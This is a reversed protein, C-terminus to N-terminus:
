AFYWGGEILSPVDYRLSDLRHFREKDKIKETPEQTTSDIERSYTGLEDLLGVCSDFVYLRFTKFLGIVRDIGTEVDAVFPRQVPVGAATWDWRYQQESAAGGHWTRVNTGRATALATAAHDASTKGGELSEHYVYFVHSVPDEAIWVTATNVAGFDIGINRPWEPPIDFAHVKHGGEERYTDIFDSYILGAPRSFMGRQFMDFKWSPMVRRLREFEERPFAPNAISEFQILDIDPDGARYRDHLQQKMWGCNYPTSTLLARGRHLALRRNIAEWSELRFQDQGPEDLWAAKATASELSEPNEASGFIVRTEGDHYAFVRDSARWTGLRLTTDFLRLFEPLMKLRLLPYTSTVALYDGPGCRAVEQRLWIPGLSTKGGQSGSLMAIFRRTSALARAQGPHPFVRLEGEPTTDWLQGTPPDTPRLRTKTPM